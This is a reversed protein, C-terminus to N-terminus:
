RGSAPVSMFRCCIADRRVIRVLMNHLRSYETWLMRRVTLM